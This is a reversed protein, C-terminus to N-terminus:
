EARFWRPHRVTQYLFWPAALALSLAAALCARSFAPRQRRPAALWYVALSGIPLVGAVSKTLIAAAVSAAFGLLATRSELWPDYFLCYLAATYFAVLLGDTMSMGGLVHWLHSSAVLLAACA